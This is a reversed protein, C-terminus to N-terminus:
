EPVAAALRAAFEDDTTEYDTCVVDITDSISWARDAILTVARRIAAEATAVASVVAAGGDFAESTDATVTSTDVEGLGRATSRFLDAVRRMEDIDATITGHTSM